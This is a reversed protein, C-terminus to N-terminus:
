FPRDASSTASSFRSRASTAPNHISRSTRVRKTTKHTFSAVLHAHGAEDGLLPGAEPHWVRDAAADEPDADGPEVFHILRPDVPRSCRRPSSSMATRSINSADPPVYPDGRM